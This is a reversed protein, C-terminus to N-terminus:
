PQLDRWSNRHRICPGRSDDIWALHLDGSPSEAAPIILALWILRPGRLIAKNIAVAARAGKAAAVIALQVDDSADGVIFLGAVNSEEFEGHPHPAMAHFFGM